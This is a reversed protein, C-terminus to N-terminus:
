KYSLKIKNINVKFQSKTQDGDSSIWLGLIEIPQGFEVPLNFQGVGKILAVCKEVLLSNLHHEREKNLLQPQQCTTFFLVKKIGLNNPLLDEMDNLWKPALRRQFWNLRSDGKVILGVRLIFDDFHKQGQLAPKKFKPIKGSVSAKVFLSTVAREKPLVYVLPSASSKVEIFLGEKKFEIKNTQINEFAYHHWNEAPGLPVLFTAFLGIYKKFPSSIVKLSKM